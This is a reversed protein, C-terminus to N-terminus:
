SLYFSQKCNTPWKMSVKLEVLSLSIAYAYMDTTNYVNYSKFNFTGM